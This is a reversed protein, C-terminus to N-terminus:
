RLLSDLVKQRAHSQLFFRRLHEADPLLLRLSQHIGVAVEVQRFGLLGELIAVSEALDPTWTVGALPELGALHCLSRIRDLLEKHLVRPQSNRYNEM